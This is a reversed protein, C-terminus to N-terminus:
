AWIMGAEMTARGDLSIGYDKLARERERVVRHGFLPEWELDQNKEDQWDYETWARALWRKTAALLRDRADWGGRCLFRPTGLLLTLFAEDYEWLDRAFTPCEEIFHPGALAMTTAMVMQARLFKNIPVLAWEHGAPPSLPVEHPNDLNSLFESTWRAALRSVPGSIM